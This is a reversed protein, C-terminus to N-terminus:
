RSHDVEFRARGGIRVETGNGLDIFGPRQGAKLAPRDDPRRPTASAAGCKFKEPPRAQGDNTPCDKAHVPSGLSLLVTVTGAFASRVRRACTMGRTLM